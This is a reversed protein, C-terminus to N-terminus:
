NAQVVLRRPITVTAKDVNVVGAATDTARTVKIIMSGGAVCSNGSTVQTLQAGAAWERSAASMTKTALADASNFAADSSVSGDSKTCAVAVNFIVTGSTNTASSFFLNVFPESGSWDAPIEYQFQATSADAFPLVGGLNNSGAVCAPTLATSWGSGAAASVCNAALATKVDPFDIAQSVGSSLLTVLQNASGTPGTAGGGGGGATQLWVGGSCQWQNGGTINVFPTVTATAVCPAGSPPDYSYFKDASGALVVSAVVHASAPLRFGRAVTLVNGNIALVQMAERDIFLTYNISIGAASAVTIQQVAPSAIAVTLTTSVLQVQASALGAFALLGFLRILRRLLSGM